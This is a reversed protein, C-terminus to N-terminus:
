KAPMREMKAAPLLPGSCLVSECCHTLGHTRHTAAVVFGSETTM